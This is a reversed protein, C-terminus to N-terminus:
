YNDTGQGSSTSSPGHSFRDGGRHGTGQGDGGDKMVIDVLNKQGANVDRGYPNTTDFVSEPGQDSSEEGDQGDMEDSAEMAQKVHAIATALGRAYANRNIRM